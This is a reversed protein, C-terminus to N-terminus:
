GIFMVVHRQIVRVCVHEQGRAGFMALLRAAPPAGLTRAAYCHQSGTVVQFHPLMGSKSRKHEM